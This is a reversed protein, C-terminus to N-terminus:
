TSITEQPARRNLSTEILTMRTTINLIFYGLLAWKVEVWVNHTAQLEVIHAQLRTHYWANEIVDNRGHLM